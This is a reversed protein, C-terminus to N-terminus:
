RSGLALPSDSSRTPRWATSRRATRCPAAAEMHSSGPPAVTRSLPLSPRVALAAFVVTLHADISERKHHYVPRTQLDHKSMRLSKEIQFLRHYACIVFDSDAVTPDLFTVPM